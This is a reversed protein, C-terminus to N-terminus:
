LQELLGPLEALSAITYDPEMGQKPVAGQPNFWCTRIGANKGGRIDSTLSDGVIIASERDFDPIQQFAAEFFAASPKDAGLEQSIMLGDF